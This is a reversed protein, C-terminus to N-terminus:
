RATLEQMGNVIRNLFGQQGQRAASGDELASSLAQEFQSGSTVHDLYPADDRNLTQLHSISQETAGVLVLERGIRVLHLTRNPALVTTTLVEVLEGGGPTSVGVRQSRRVMRNVVLISGVVVVLGFVLRVLAATTDRSEGTGTPGEEPDVAPEDGGPLNLPLSESDTTSAADTAPAQEGDGVTPSPAPPPGADQALAPTGVVLCTILAVMLAAHRMLPHFSTM